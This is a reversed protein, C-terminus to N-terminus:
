RFKYRICAVNGEEFPMGLLVRAQARIVEALHDINSFAGGSIDGIRIAVGFAEEICLAIELADLSDLCIGAGGLLPEDAIEDPELIDPRLLGAVLHRLQSRLLDRDQCRNKM